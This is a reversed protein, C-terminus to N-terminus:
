RNKLVMATGLMELMSMFTGSAFFSKGDKMMDKVEPAMFQVKIGIKDQLSELFDELHGERENANFTTLWQAATDLLGSKAVKEMALFLKMWNEMSAKGVVAETADLEDLKDKWASTIKNSSLNINSVPVIDDMGLQIITNADLKAQIPNAFM